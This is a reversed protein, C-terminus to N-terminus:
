RSVVVGFGDLIGVARERTAYDVAGEVSNHQAARPPHNLQPRSPKRTSSLPAVNKPEDLNATTEPWPKRLVRLVLKRVADHQAFVREFNEADWSVNELAVFTRDTAPYYTMTSIFGSVYGCHSYEIAGEPEAIQLGFGYGLSGWRYPRKTSPTVMALYSAPSLVKGHHLCQNWRVLDSVTSVMGGPPLHQAREAQSAVVLTHDTQESYGEVLGPTDGLQLIQSQNMGCSEFLANAMDSYSKATVKEIIQGLLEYGLNSYAFAAGPETKLPGDVAAIGSTHNLLHRVKARQAWDAGLELYTSIPADLNIRGADVQQLVLSATVQKTLSGVVFRSSLTLPVLSERNAHGAAKAYVVRTGEALLM